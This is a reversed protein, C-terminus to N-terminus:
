KNFYLRRQWVSVFQSPRAITGARNPRGWVFYRGADAAVEGPWPFKGERNRKVANEDAPVVHLEAWDWAERLYGILEASDSVKMREVFNLEVTAAYEVDTSLFIAALEDPTKM